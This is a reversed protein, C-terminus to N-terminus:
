PTTNKNKLKYLNNLIDKDIEKALEKVLSDEIIYSLGKNYKKSYKIIKIYKHIGPHPALKLIKVFREYLKSNYEVIYYYKDFTRVSLFGNDIDEKLNFVDNFDKKIVYYM